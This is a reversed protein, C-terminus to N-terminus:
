VATVNCQLSSLSYASHSTSLLLWGESSVVASSVHLVASLQTCMCSIAVVVVGAATCASSLSVKKLHPQVALPDKTQSLIELLEDNSLFYFRSFGARKTELYDSLGKQVTELLRASERLKELLKPSNCFKVCPAGGGAAAATMTSRWHKDVSAFRKGELPLQQAHLLLAPLLPLPLLLTLTHDSM